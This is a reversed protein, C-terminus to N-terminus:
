HRPRRWREFILIGIEAGSISGVLMGINLYFIVLGLGELFDPNPHVINFLVYAIGSGLYVGIISGVITWLIVLIKRIRLLNFVGVTIGAILGYLIPVFVFSVTTPLLDLINM